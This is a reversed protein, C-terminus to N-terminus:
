PKPGRNMVLRLNMAKRWGEPDRHPDPLEDDRTAHDLGARRVRAMKVRNALDKVLDRCEAALDETSQMRSELSRLKAAPLEAVHRASRAAYVAAALCVVSLVASLACFIAPWM